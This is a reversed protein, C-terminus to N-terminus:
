QGIVSITNNTSDFIHNWIYEIARDQAFVPGLFGISMSLILGVLIGLIFKRM